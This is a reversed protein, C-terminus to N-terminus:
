LSFLQMDHLVAIEPSCKADHFCHNLLQAASRPPFFHPENVENWSIGCCVTILESDRQATTQQPEEPNEAERTRLSYAQLSGDSM